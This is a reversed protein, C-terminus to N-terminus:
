KMRRRVQLARGIALRAAGAQGSLGGSRVAIYADIKCATRTLLFPQLVEFRHYHLPWRHYVDEEGNIKIVEATSKPTVSGLLSHPWFRLTCLKKKTSRGSASKKSNHQEAGTEKRFDPTVLSPDYKCNLMLVLHMRLYATRWTNNVKVIRLTRNSLSLLIIGELTM